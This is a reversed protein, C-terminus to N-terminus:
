SYRRGNQSQCRTCFRAATRDLQLISRLRVESSNMIIIDPNDAFETAMFRWVFSNEPVPARGGLDLVGEPLVSQILARPDRSKM